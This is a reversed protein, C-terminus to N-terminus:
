NLSVIEVVICYVAEVYRESDFQINMHIQVCYTCQFDFLLDQDAFPLTSHAGAACAIVM